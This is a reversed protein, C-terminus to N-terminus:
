YLNSWVPLRFKWSAYVTWTFTPWALPAKLTDATTVFETTALKTSSDWPSQTVGTTWTPLSPTWTFVQSDINAKASIDVPDPKNKLKNYDLAPANVWPIQEFNPAFKDIKTSPYSKSKEMNYIPKQM